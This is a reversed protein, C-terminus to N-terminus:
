GFKAVINIVAHAVAAAVLTRRWLFVGALLAGLLGDTLMATLGYAWHLPGFFLTSVLVAGGTGLRPALRTIAYGRYVSEEVIGALVTTFGWWALLAGLSDPAAVGTFIRYDGARQALGVLPALVFNNLAGLALGSAVGVLTELPLARSRWGIAELTLRERRLLGLLALFVLVHNLVLMWPLWRGFAAGIARRDGHTAFGFYTGLLTALALLLVPPLALMGWVRALPEPRTAEM